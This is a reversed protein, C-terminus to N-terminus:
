RAVRLARSTCRHGADPHKRGPCEGYRPYYRYRQLVGLAQPQTPLAPQLAERIKLGKEVAVKFPIAKDPALTKLGEIAWEVPQPDM